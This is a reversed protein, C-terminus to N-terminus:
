APATWGQHQIRALLRLATDRDGEVILMGHTYAELPTLRSEAIQWWAEEVVLVDLDPTRVRGAHVRCGQPGTELVWSRGRGEHIIRLRVQTRDPSVGIFEALRVVTADLDRRASEVLSPAARSALERICRERSKEADPTSSGRSGAHARLLYM